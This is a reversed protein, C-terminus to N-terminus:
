HGGALLEGFGLPTLVLSANPSGSGQLGPPYFCLSIHPTYGCGALKRWCEAQRGKQKSNKATSLIAPKLYGGGEKTQESVAGM